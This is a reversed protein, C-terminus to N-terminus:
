ENLYRGGMSLGVHVVPVGAQVQHVQQAADGDFEVQEAGLERCAVVQV